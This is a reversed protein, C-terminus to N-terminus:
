RALKKKFFHVVHILQEYRTTQSKHEYYSEEFIHESQTDETESHNRVSAM